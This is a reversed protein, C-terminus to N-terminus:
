PHSSRGGQPDAEPNVGRRHRNILRVRWYGAEHFADLLARQAPAMPGAGHPPQPLSAGLYVFGADYPQVVTKEANLALGLRALHQEAAALCRTAQPEDRCVLLIDDIYRTLIHAPRDLARDFPTLVSTALLPSLPSGQPAGRPGTPSARRRNAAIAVAAGGAVAAGAGLALLTPNPRRKLLARGMRGLLAQALPRVLMAQPLDYPDYGLARLAGAAPAAPLRPWAAEPEPVADIFPSPPQAPPEPLPAPRDLLGATLWEDVLATLADDRTIARFTAVIRAHDVEDFFAHIDTRAIWNNGSQRAREVRALADGVGRGPLAGFAAPSADAIFLPRAIDLVARQVVRDRLTLVSIPRQGGDPRPLLFQRLPQPHYRRERLDAALEAMHEPWRAEFAAVSQGDAGIAGGRRAARWARILTEPECLRSYLPGRAARGRGPPRNSM